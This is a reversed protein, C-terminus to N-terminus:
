PSFFSRYKELTGGNSDEEQKKDKLKKREERDARLKWEKLWSFGFFIFILVNIIFLYIFLESGHEQYTTYMQM